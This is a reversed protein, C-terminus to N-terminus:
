YQVPEGSCWYKRYRVYLMQWGCNYTDPLNLQSVYSYIIHQNPKHEDGIEITKELFYNLAEYCLCTDYIHHNVYLEQGGVPSLSDYDSDYGPMHFINLYDAFVIRQGNPCGLEWNNLTLRNNAILAIMEFAGKNAHLLSDYCMGGGNITRWCEGEEFDLKLTESTLGRTVVIICLEADNNKADNNLNCEIGFVTKEPFEVANYVDLIQHFAKQYTEALHCLDVKDNTLTLHVNLTDCHLVNTAYNPDDFDFNLLNVLNHRAEELSILEGGKEASLLKEKFSLLYSDMNESPQVSQETNNVTQEQKEKKCSMIAVTTALIAMAIIALISNKKM